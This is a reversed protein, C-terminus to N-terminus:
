NLYGLARLREKVELEFGVPKQSSTHTSPDIKQKVIKKEGKEITLWPIEVLEKIHIGEPHSLIFWEGFCEGHDATIVIRGELNKVLKKLYKLVLILNDKYAEKLKAISIKGNRVLRWIEQIIEDKPTNDDVNIERRSIKTEGIYPAHPQLFHIIMKKNPFQEKIRLTAEIVKQPHVTGTEESWGYDWVPEVKFFHEYGKFGHFEFTSIYPNASIYVIDNHFDNFNEKLWEPTCSGRSLRKELKGEINNYKKFFDYRCADLVILYDWREEILRVRNKNRAVSNTVVGLFRRYEQYTVPLKNFIMEFLKKINVRYAHTRDKKRCAYLNVFDEVRENNFSKQRLLFSERKM